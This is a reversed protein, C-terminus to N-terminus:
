APNKRDLVWTADLRTIIRNLKGDLQTLSEKDDDRLQKLLQNINDAIAHIEYAIISASIGTVVVGLTTFFRSM